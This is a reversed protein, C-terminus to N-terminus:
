KVSVRIWLRWWNSANLTITHFSRFSCRAPQSHYLSPAVIRATYDALQVLNRRQENLRRLTELRRRGRRKRQKSLKKHLRQFNKSRRNEAFSQVVFRAFFIMSDPISKTKPHIENPNYYEDLELAGDIINTNSSSLLAAAAPTRHRRALAAPEEKRRMSFYSRQSHPPPATRVLGRGSVTFSHVLVPVSLLTLLILLPLSSQCSRFTASTRSSHHYHFCPDRQRQRRRM